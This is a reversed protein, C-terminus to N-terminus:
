SERAVAILRPNLCVVDANPALAELHAVLRHRLAEPEGDAALFLLESARRLQETTTRPDRVFRLAEGLTPM